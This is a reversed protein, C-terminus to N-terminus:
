IEGKLDNTTFYLDVNFTLVSNWGNIGRNAKSDSVGNDSQTFYLAKVFPKDRWQLKGILDPWNTLICCCIFEVPEQVEVLRVDGTAIILEYERKFMTSSSTASINGSINGNCMLTLEPLNGTQVNSRIPNRKSEFGIINQEKCLDRLSTSAKLGTVIESYVLSFPNIEKPM